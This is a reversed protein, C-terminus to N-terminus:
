PKPPKLVTVSEQANKRRLEEYWKSEIFKLTEDSTLSTLAIDLADRGLADEHWLSIETNSVLFKAFEEQGQALAVQVANMKTHYDTQEICKPNAKLAAIGEEFDGFEAARIINPETGMRGDDTVSYIKLVAM